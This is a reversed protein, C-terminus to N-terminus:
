VPSQDQNETEYWNSMVKEFLSDYADESLWEPLESGSHFEILAQLVELEDPTFRFILETMKTAPKVNLWDPLLDVLVTFSLWEKQKRKLPFTNVEGSM